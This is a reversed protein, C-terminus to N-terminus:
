NKNIRSNSFDSFKGGTDVLKVLLSSPEWGKGCINYMKNVEKLITELGFQDAEFMPGGRWAPYGYGNIMVMDIDVSRIAIEEELIRAGENAMVALARLQIDTDDISVPTIGLASRQEDVLATIQPDIDGKRNGSSYDYFGKGTKQGLRGMECLMDPLGVYRMGSLYSEKRADRWAKSIDLGSLDYVAFPGMPFGYSKMARDIDQPYVADEIMYEYQQRLRSWIRNGIFGDCVRALVATKKLRKGIAFASAVVEPTTKEAQVIELLKMINAPSFFHLGIVDQPRTTSQAIEDIDLYSTNTAFIAGKKLIKDLSSFLQKKVDMDEFVAEIVCDMTSLEDLSTSWTIGRLLRHSEDQGLKGRKVSAEYIGSVKQKGRELADKTMELVTVNFGANVFAVAIGSGMTGSGIIGINDVSRAQVKELGPIKSIVRQGFFAHRLAASQTSSLCEAFLERERKMGQEFSLSGSNLVSEYAKLPSLQGKARRIVAAELKDLDVADMAVKCASLVTPVPKGLANQKVFDIAGSVLDTSIVADILGTELAESTMVRRCSTIMDVALEIGVLRPLRQTGGAGPILGLNVEPLGFQASSTAVRYHCGLAIELGGGLATGHLAAILPKSCGELALVVDPLLPELPGKGFERIDAGAIFTKGECWIVGAALGSTANLTNIADVLGLRVVQSIANVPPNNIRIIAINDQIDITVPSTIESVNSKSM